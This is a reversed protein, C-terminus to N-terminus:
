QGSSGFGGAGRTTEEDVKGEFVPFNSVHIMVMQAIKEGVNIYRPGSAANYMAVKIEGRYGEDIVGAVVFLYGRTAISSRDFIKCGYGPPFKIRIGTSILKTEGIDFSCHEAAYLDYGLDEVHAKTPLKADQVLREVTLSMIGHWQQATIDTKTTM